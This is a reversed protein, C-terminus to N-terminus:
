IRNLYKDIIMGPVRTLGVALIAGAVGAAVDGVLEYNGVKSTEAMLNLVGVIAVIAFPMVRRFKGVERLVSPKEVILEAIISAVDITLMGMGAVLMSLPVNGFHNEILPSINDYVHPYQNNFKDVKTAGVTAWMALSHGLLPKNFKEWFGLDRVGAKIKETIEM